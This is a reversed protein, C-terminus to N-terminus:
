LFSFFFIMFLGLILLVCSKQNILKRKASKDHFPLKFYYVCKLLGLYRM